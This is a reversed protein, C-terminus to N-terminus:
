SRALVALVVAFAARGFVPPVIVPSMVIDPAPTPTTKLSAEVTSAILSEVEVVEEVVAAEAVATLDAYSKALVALVVALAATGQEENAARPL